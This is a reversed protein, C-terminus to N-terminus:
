LRTLMRQSRSVRPLRLCSLFASQKDDSVSMRKKRLMKRAMHQLKERQYSSAAVVVIMVLIGIVGLVVALPHLGGEESTHREIEM